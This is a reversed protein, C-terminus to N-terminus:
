AMAFDQHVGQRFDYLVGLYYQAGAHGKEALPRWEHLATTYDTRSYAGMGAEFDAWTSAALGIISLMLTLAICLSGTRDAKVPYAGCHRATVAECLVSTKSTETACSYNDGGCGGPREVLPHRNRCKSGNSM